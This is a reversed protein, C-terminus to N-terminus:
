CHTRRAPPREACNRRSSLLSRSSRTSTRGIPRCTGCPCQAPTIAEHVAPNRHVRLKDLVITTGAPLTPLLWNTLWHQYLQGDMAGPVVLPAVVGNSGITMLCALNEGHNPPVQGVVRDGRPALCRAQAMVIQTSTEDLFVLKTTDVQAGEDRWEARAAEDLETAILM